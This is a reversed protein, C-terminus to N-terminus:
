LILIIKLTIFVLGYIGTDDICLEFPEKKLIYILSPILFGFTYGLYHAWINKIIYTGNQIIIINSELPLSAITITAMAALFWVSKMFSQEKISKNLMSIFTMWVLYGFYGSAIGSFGKSSFDGFIPITVLAYFIPFLLTIALLTHIYTKSHRGTLYIGTLFFYSLFLNSLAYSISYHSWKDIFLSLIFNQSTTEIIALYLIVETIAIALIITFIGNIKEISLKKM